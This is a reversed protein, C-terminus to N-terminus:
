PQSLIFRELQATAQELSKLDIWEDVTHAQAIDGPGFVVCPIGAAGLIAADCFFDVGLPKRQGAQDLFQKVLPLAPNTEMPWCENTKFNGLRAGPIRKLFANLEREVGAQTEGPLTRRDIIIECRDPVVNAQTGGRIAGVSVTPNGLLPHKRKALQKTYDALLWDVIPCMAHVANKGLHPKSGHAAKGHTEIKLWLDGKHATVVKNLTPEGIIALGAKIGKKAFARSGTQADEEDVFATFLIETENLAGRTSAVRSLATLMAAVSGKTDCAGRGYIRGNKKVPKFQEDSAPVTDMHPGLIIRRKTRGRSELRALLNSRGPFVEQFEVALGANAATAALFEAVKQEGTNPSGAPVFTPNVSPLAILEALLRAADAM